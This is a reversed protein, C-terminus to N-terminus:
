FLEDIKLHHQCGLKSEITGHRQLFLLFFFLQLVCFLCFHNWHPTKIMGMLQKRATNHTVSFWFTFRGILLHSASWVLKMLSCYFFLVLSFYILSLLHNSNNGNQWLSHMFSVPFAEKHLNLSFFFFLCLKIEKSPSFASCYPEHTHSFCPTVHAPLSHTTQPLGQSLVGGRGKVM